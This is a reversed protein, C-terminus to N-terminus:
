GSYDELWWDWDFRTDGMPYINCFVSSGVFRIDSVTFVIKIVDGNCLGEPITDLIRNRLNEKFKAYSIENKM